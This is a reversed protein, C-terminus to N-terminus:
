PPGDQDVVTIAAHRELGVQRLVRLARRSPNYLWLRQGRHGLATAVTVLVDVAAVALYEVGALDLGTLGHDIATHLVIGLRAAGAADLEGALHVCGDRVVVSWGDGAVCRYHLRLLGSLLQDSEQWPDYRCLVHLPHEVRLADLDREYTLLGSEDAACQHWSGGDPSLSVGSYGERKAQDLLALHSARVAERGGGTSTQWREAPWVEIQGAAVAAATSSRTTVQQIVSYDNGGPHAYLVVKHGTALARLVWRQLAERATAGPRLWLAHTGPGVRSADDETSM